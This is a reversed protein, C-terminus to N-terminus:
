PKSVIKWIHNKLPSQQTCFSSFHRQLKRMKSGKKHIPIILAEKWESPVSKTNWMMQFLNHLLDITTGEGAKLM